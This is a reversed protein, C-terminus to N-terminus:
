HNYGQRIKLVEQNTSKVMKTVEVYRLKGFKSGTAHEDCVVTLKLRTRIVNHMGTEKQYAVGNTDMTVCLIKALDVIVYEYASTGEGKFTRKANNVAYKDIFEKLKPSMSRITKKIPLDSRKLANDCINPSDSPIWISATLTGNKPNIDIGAAYFDDVYSRGIRLIENKLADATFRFTSAVPAVGALNYSPASIPMLKDALAEKDIPTNTKNAM